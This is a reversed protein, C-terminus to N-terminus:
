DSVSGLVDGIEKVVFRTVVSIEVRKRAAGAEQALSQIVAFYAGVEDRM